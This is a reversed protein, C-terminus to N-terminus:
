TCEIVYAGANLWGPGTGGRVKERFGTVQRETSDLAVTGYRETDELRSVALTAVIAPDRRVELHHKLIQAYDAALYTDGNLVLARPKFFRDALRLAGGTGLLTETKVPTNRNSHELDSGCIAWAIDEIQSAMHGVCLM